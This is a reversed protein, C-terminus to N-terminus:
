PLLSPHPNVGDNRASCCIALIMPRPIQRVLTNPWDEWGSPSPKLRPLLRALGGPPSAPEFLAIWRRILAEWAEPGDSMSAVDWSELHVFGTEQERLEELFDDIIASAKPGFRGEIITQRIELRAMAQDLTCVLHPRQLDPPDGAMLPVHHIDDPQYLAFWGIAVGYKFSRRMRVPHREQYQALPAEDELVDLHAWNGM